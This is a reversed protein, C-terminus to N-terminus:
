HAPPGREAVAHFRQQGAVADGEVELVAASPVKEPVAFLSYKALLVCGKELEDPIGMEIGCAGFQHTIWGAVAARGRVGEKLM